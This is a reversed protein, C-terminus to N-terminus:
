ERWEIYKRLDGVAAFPVPLDKMTVLGPAANLVKPIANIVAAITGIDGNVGGAIKEHIDPEGKIDVSDYPEVVNAHSVFELTIVKKGEKVGYAMSKLGAVQGPKVTTYTTKTEKDSIVPEPSLEKVDDLSWGLAAAIMCMSEILGVHGTIRKDEIMGQFTDPDLGTGIKKQYADRRNGSYMMRTVKISEVNLCPGTLAIPLTDMLYGPNIGTGLVTVGYEKALGDLEASLEPYKYYPYSLEECTSVIDMEAKVCIEIQQYALKLHSVTAHVVVDAEIRSCLEEADDSVTVGVRRGINLVEGLDKGVINKAIDVAGVVQLGEKKLIYTAIRRGMAGLGFLVVRIKNM